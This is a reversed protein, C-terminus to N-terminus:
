FEAELCLHHKLLLNHTYTLDTLALLQPPSPSTSTVVEHLHSVPESLSNLRRQQVGSNNISGQAFLM